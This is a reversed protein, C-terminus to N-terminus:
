DVKVMKVEFICVFKQSFLCIFNIYLNDYYCNDSEKTYM